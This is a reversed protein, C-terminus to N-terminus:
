ALHAEFAGALGGTHRFGVMGARRIISDTTSAVLTNNFYARLSTGIVEFRLRGSGVGVQGQALFEWGMGPNRWIQVFYREDATRLLRAMYANSDAPGTSRALLGLSSNAGAQTTLDIDASVSVDAALPGNLTVVATGNTNLALRHNQIRVDGDRETWNSGIFSSNPRDFLDTFPLIVNTHPPPSAIEALFNTSSGGTQRIGLTGITVRDNTVSTLLVGDVYLDLRSGYVNFRLRGSSGSIPVTSLPTNNGGLNVWIEASYSGQHKMIRAFYYNSDGPGSYRAAVGVSREVEASQLDFDLSISVNAQWVGNLTALAERNSALVLHKDVIQLDGVREVWASSLDSNNPRNFNDAFPLSVATAGVTPLVGGGSPSSAFPRKVATEVLSASEDAAFETAQAADPHTEAIESSPELTGLFGALAPNAVLLQRHELRELTRALNTLADRRAASARRSARSQHPRRSFPFM